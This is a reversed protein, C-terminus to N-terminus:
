FNIGQSRVSSQCTTRALTQIRVLTDRSILECLNPRPSINSTFKRLAISSVDLLDIVVECDSISAPLNWADKIMDTYM